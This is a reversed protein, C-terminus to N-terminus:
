VNNESESVGVIYVSLCYLIVCRSCVIRDGDDFAKQNAMYEDPPCRWFYESGCRSCEWEFRIECQDSM